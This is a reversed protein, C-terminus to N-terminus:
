VSARRWLALYGQVPKGKDLRSQTETTSVVDFNSHAAMRALYASSHAYRGTINLKHDRQDSLAAAADTLADLSEVSFAFLGGPRLLRQTQNVLDDLKGLYVFVDAAFVVDYSSPAEGQMKTLLDGQELRLYLNRERAKELMKASLDVGVIQRAYPAIAAGSLGTGCGLDLVAWQEGNPDSHPRLLEALKEPVSYGLVEVLHSDFKDAYQDFLREVYASPARESDGGSLAAILHKVASEPDLRVVEEFCAVAEKTAGRALLANGLLQRAAAFEPELAVARRYRAIAEDTRGHSEEVNGLGVQAAACEPKLAVAREYCATAQDLKGESQMVSGLGVHADVLNPEFWLAKQYSAVAEELRNRKRLVDALNKHYEASGPQLALAKEFCAIAKDYDKEHSLLNGLNLQFEASEPYVSLAKGLVDKAQQIEGGQFLAISLERYAFEFDPKGELARTFHEISGRPDNRYKAITGLLYHADANGSDSALAQRLSQEAERYQKKESLVFGLGVCADVSDPNMSVARRYCEAAEDLRDFRLHEDGRKKYTNSDDAPLAAKISFLSRLSTFM